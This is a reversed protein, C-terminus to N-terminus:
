RSGMSNGAKYDCPKLCKRADAGHMSHYWCIPFKRYSSNSRSRQRSSHRRRPTRSRHSPRHSAKTHEELKLALHEVMKKLEAIERSSSNSSSMSSSTAAVHCPTTIEQIRDALDSLQELSHTTQSALVTQISQPLRNSWITRLLDEPVSSGALDQLHRLFQSPKRDGLEEHTLLQKVKREHSASLRKILETKIKDYRKSAPPNLIIDKVAKAHQVDLSSTVYTFKDSDDTINHLNFQGELLAFWIEPDDPAFVPVKLNITSIDSTMQRATSVRVKPTRRFTVKESHGDQFQSTKNSDSSDSM